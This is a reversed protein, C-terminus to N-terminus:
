ATTKSDPKMEELMNKDPRHGVIRNLQKLCVFMAVALTRIAMGRMSLRKADSM